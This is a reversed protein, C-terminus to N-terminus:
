LDLKTQLFFILFDLDKAVLIGEGIRLNNIKSPIKGDWILTLSSTAGGSIM